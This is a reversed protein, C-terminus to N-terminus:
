KLILFSELSLTCNSFADQPIPLNEYTYLSSTTVVKCLFFFFVLLILTM